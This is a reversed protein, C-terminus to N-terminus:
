CMPTNGVRCVLAFHRCVGQVACVFSHGSFPSAGEIGAMCPSAKRLRHYFKPDQGFNYATLIVDVSGAQLAYDLCAILNGAHGSIGTARIKGQRKAQAVCAAWEPNKLRQVDNVAQNFYIDVYDTRLRRLSGELTAM